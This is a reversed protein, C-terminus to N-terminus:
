LSRGEDRSARRRPGGRETLGAVEGDTETEGREANQCSASLQAVAMLASAEILPIVLGVVNSQRFVRELEALQEPILRDLLLEGAKLHPDEAV